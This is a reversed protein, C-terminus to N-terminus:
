EHDSLEYRMTRPEPKPSQIVDVAVVRFPSKSEVPESISALDSPAESSGKNRTGDHTYDFSIVDLNASRAVPGHHKGM